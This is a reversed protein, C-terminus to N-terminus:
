MWSVLTESHDLLDVLDPYEISIIWEHVADTSIGRAKLDPIMAYLKIGHSKLHAISEPVNGMKSAGIVGDHILVVGITKQHNVHGRLIPTLRDLEKGYRPSFGFLYVIDLKDQM